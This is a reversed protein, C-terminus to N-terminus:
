TQEAIFHHGRNVFHGLYPDDNGGALPQGCAPHPDRKSTSLALGNAILVFPNDLDAKIRDSDLFTSGQWICSRLTTRIKFLTAM